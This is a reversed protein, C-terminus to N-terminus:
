FVRKGVIIQDNPYVLPDKRPDKIADKYNVKIIEGNHRRLEIKKRNAFDTFGGATAVARLV